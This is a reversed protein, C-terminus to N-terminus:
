RPLQALLFGDRSIYPDLPRSLTTGAQWFEDIQWCRPNEKLGLDGSELLLSVMEVAHRGMGQYDRRLGSFEERQANICFLSIDEPVKLGMNKLWASIDPEHHIFLADPQYHKMWARFTKENWDGTTAAIPIRQRPPQRLQLLLYAAYITGRQHKNQTPEVAMGVRRYGAKKLLHFAEIIKNYDSTEVHHLNRPHWVSRGIEVSAFNEWQFYLRPQKSALRPIVILGRIGRAQFIRSLRRHESPSGSLKFPELKYGLSRAREAAGIFLNKQYTPYPDLTPDDLSFETLFALTERYREANSQRALSLAKSLIPLPQYDLARAAAEIKLRTAASIRGANRLALSVTATSFGTKQAIERISSSM